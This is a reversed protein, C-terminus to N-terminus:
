HPYTMEITYTVKLQATDPIVIPTSLLDRCLMADGSTSSSGGMGIGVYIGVEEVTVSGGSNNNFFRILTSTYKKTGTDYALTMDEQLIYSLRGTDTGSLIKTELQYGTPVGDFAEAANGSGVVIGRTSLNSGGVWFNTTGAGAVFTSLNKELNSGYVAGSTLRIRLSGAEYGTPTGAGHAVGLMQTTVINWANRVWSKSRTKYELLQEGNKDFVDFQLFTRPPTMVHMAICNKDIGDLINLEEQTIENIRQM